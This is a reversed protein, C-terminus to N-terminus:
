PYEQFKVPTVIEWWRGFRGRVRLLRTFTPVGYTERRIPVTCPNCRETLRSRRSWSTATTASRGPAPSCTSIRGRQVSTVALEAIPASTFRRWAGLPRSHSLLALGWRHERQELRRGLTLPPQASCHRPPGRELQWRRLSSLFWSPGSRRRCTRTCRCTPTPFWCPPSLRRSDLVLRGGVTSKSGSSHACCPIKNDPLIQAPNSANSRSNILLSFHFM